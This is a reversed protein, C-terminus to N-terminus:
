EKNYLWLIPISNISNELYKVNEREGSIILNMNEYYLITLKYKKLVKNISAIERLITRVSVALENHLANANCSKKNILENLIFQQRPTLTNM